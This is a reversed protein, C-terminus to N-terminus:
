QPAWAKLESGGEEADQTNLSSAQKAAKALKSSMACVSSEERDKLCQSWSDSPSTHLMLMELALLCIESNSPGELHQSHHFWLTSLSILVYLLPQPHLEATRHKGLKFLARFKLRLM